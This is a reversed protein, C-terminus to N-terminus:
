HEEGIIESGLIEDEKLECREINLFRQAERATSFIFLTIQRECYIDGGLTEVFFVPERHATEGYGAENVVHRAGNREVCCIGSSFALTFQEESKIVVREMIIIKREVSRVLRM